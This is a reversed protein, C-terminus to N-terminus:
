NNIMHTAAKPFRAFIEDKFDESIPLEGIALSMCSLWARAGKRTVKHPMHRMRLRPHGHVESYRAPGGFFQSLFMYQKEKVLEIDTQFVEKLEPHQYVREYFKDVLLQLNGDGLREYITTIM